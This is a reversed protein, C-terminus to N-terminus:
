QGPCIRPGDGFPLYALAPRSAKQEESFREPDYREPDPWYQPDYHLARIPVVVRTGKSVEVDTLPVRRTTGAERTIVALPPYKRLTESPCVLFSPNLTMETLTRVRLVPRLIASVM